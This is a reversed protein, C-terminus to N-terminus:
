DFTHVRTLLEDHFFHPLPGCSALWPRLPPFSLARCCCYYYYSNLTAKCDQWEYQEVEALFVVLRDTTGPPTERQVKTKVDRQVSEAASYHM